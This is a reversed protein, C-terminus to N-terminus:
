QDELSYRIAWLGDVSGVTEYGRLPYSSCVFKRKNFSSGKLTASFTVHREGAATAVQQDGIPSQFLLESEFKLVADVEECKNRMCDSVKTGIFSTRDMGFTKCWTQSAVVVDGTRTCIVLADCTSMMLSIVRSRGAEMCYRKFHIEDDFRRGETKSGYYDVFTKCYERRDVPMGVEFIKPVPFLLKEPFMCTSINSIRIGIFGFAQPKSSNPKVEDLVPFLTVRCEVLSGNYTYFTQEIDEIAKRSEEMEKFCKALPIVNAGDGHLFFLEYGLIESFPWGFQKQFAPNAWNVLGHASTPTLLLYADSSTTWEQILPASIIKASSSPARNPNASIIESM